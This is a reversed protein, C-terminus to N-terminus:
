INLFSFVKSNVFILKLHKLNQELSKKALHLQLHDFRGKVDRCKFFVLWSHWGTVMAKEKGGVFFYM